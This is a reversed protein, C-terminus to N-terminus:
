SSALLVHVTCFYHMPYKRARWVLTPVVDWPFYSIWKGRGAFNVHGTLPSWELFSTQDELWWNEPSIITELPILINFFCGRLVHCFKLIRLIGSGQHWRLWEEVEPERTWAAKKPHFCHVDWWNFMSMSNISSIRSVLQYPLYVMMLLIKYM